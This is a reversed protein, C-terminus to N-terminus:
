MEFCKDSHTQNKHKPEWEFIKLTKTKSQTERGIFLIDSITYLSSVIFSYSRKSYKFQM